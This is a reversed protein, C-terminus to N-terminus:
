VAVMPRATVAASGAASLQSPRLLRPPVRSLKSTINQIGWVVKPFLSILSIGFDDERFSAGVPTVWAQGALEKRDVPPKAEGKPPLVRSNHM